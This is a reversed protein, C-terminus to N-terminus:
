RISVDKSWSFILNRWVPHNVKPNDFTVRLLTIMVTAKLYKLFTHRPSSLELSPNAGGVISLYERPGSPIITDMMTQGSVAHYSWTSVPIRLRSFLVFWYCPYSPITILTNSWLSVMLRAEPKTLYRSAFPVTYSSLFTREIYIRTLTPIFISTWIGSNIVSRSYNRTM